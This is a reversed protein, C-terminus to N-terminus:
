YFSYIYFFGFGIQYEIGFDFLGSLTSIRDNRPSVAEQKFVFALGRLSLNSRYRSRGQYFIGLVTTEFLFLFL